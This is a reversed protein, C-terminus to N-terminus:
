TPLSRRYRLERVPIGGPLTEEQVQGDATFGAGEYFRIARQNGDLVWLTVLQYGQEQLQNLASTLLAAGYGKSWCVPLLYIAYLEGAGEHILEDDRCPGFSAFGVIRDGEEYVLTRSSRPMALIERWEQTRQELSLTALLTDPLLGRYAVQWSAIHVGAVAPADGPKAARVTM